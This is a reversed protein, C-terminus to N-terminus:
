LNKWLQTRWLSLFIGILWTTNEGEWKLSVYIKKLRDQPRAPLSQISVLVHNLFYTDKYVWFSKGRGAPKAEKMRIGILLKSTTIQFCKPMIHIKFKVIDITYHYVLSIWLYKQYPFGAPLWLGPRMYQQHEQPRRWRWCVPCWTSRLHALVMEPLLM